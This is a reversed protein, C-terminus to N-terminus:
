DFLTSPPETYELRVYVSGGNKNILIIVLHEKISNAVMEISEGAKLKLAALEALM